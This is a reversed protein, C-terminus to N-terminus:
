GDDPHGINLAWYEGKLNGSRIVGTNIEGPEMPYTEVTGDSFAVLYLGPEHPMEGLAVPSWLLRVIQEMRKNYVFFPGLVPLDFPWPCPAVFSAFFGM